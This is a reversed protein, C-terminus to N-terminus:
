DEKLRRMEAGLLAILDCILDDVHEIESLPGEDKAKHLMEIARRLGAIM